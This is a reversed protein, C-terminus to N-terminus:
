LKCSNIASATLGIPVEEFPFLRFCKRNCLDQLMKVSLNYYYVSGINDNDTVYNDYDLNCDTMNLYGVIQKLVGTFNESVSIM